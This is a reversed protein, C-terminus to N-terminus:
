RKGGPKEEYEIKKIRGRVAVSKLFFSKLTLCEGYIKVTFRPVSLWIEEREYKLICLCHEVCFESNGSISAEATECFMGEPLEFRDALRGAVRKKKRNM